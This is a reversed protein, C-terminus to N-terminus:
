QPTAKSVFWRPNLQTLTIGTSVGDNGFHDQALTPLYICSTRWWEGQSAVWIHSYRPHKVRKGMRFGQTCTPCSIVILLTLHSWDRQGRSNPHVISHQM